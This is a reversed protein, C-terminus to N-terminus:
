RHGRHRVRPRVRAVPRVAARVADDIEGPRTPPVRRKVVALSRCPEGDVLVAGAAVEAFVDLRRNKALTGILASVLPGNHVAAPSVIRVASTMQVDIATKLHWEPEDIPAVTRLSMLPRARIVQGTPELGPYADLVHERQWPHMPLRPPLGTGTSHWSDPPVAVVSLDIVPRFEPAYRRIEDESLGMRTRCLPHLPHGDVISQELHPLATSASKRPAGSRALALNTASNDLEARLRDRAPSPPSIAALLTGPDRIPRGDVTISLGREARAFAQAADAPGIATRGGGLALILHAGEYRRSVVGDLPERAYAGWLRALVAATAGTPDDHDAGPSM